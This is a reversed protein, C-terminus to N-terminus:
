SEKEKRLLTSLTNALETEKVNDAQVTTQPKLGYSIKYTNDENRDVNVNQHKYGYGRPHPGFRALFMLGTKTSYIGTSDFEHFDFGQKKIEQSIQTGINM